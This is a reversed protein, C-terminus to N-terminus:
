KKGGDTGAGDEKTEKAELIKGKADLTVDYKTKRATEVEVEYTVESGKTVEDAGTVTGRPFKAKLAAAVAKPLDKPDIEREVQILDGDDDFTAEITKGKEKLVVDYYVDGDEKGTTASEAKANKFKAEIADKVKAPLKDLDIKDDARGLNGILGIM